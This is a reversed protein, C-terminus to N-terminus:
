MFGYGETTLVHVIVNVFVTSDYKLPMEIM